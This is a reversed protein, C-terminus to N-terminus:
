LAKEEAVALIETVAPSFNEGPLWVPSGPHSISAM